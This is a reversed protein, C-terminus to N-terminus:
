WGRLVKVGRRCIFLGAALSVLASGGPQAAVEPVGSAMMDRGHMESRVILWTAHM